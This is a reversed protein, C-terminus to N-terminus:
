HAVLRLRGNRGLVCVSSSLFERRRISRQDNAAACRSDCVREAHCRSLKKGSRLGGRRTPHRLIVLRLYHTKCYQLSHRGGSRDLALQPQLDEVDQELSQLV